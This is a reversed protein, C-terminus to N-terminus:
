EYENEVCFSDPCLVEDQEFKPVKCVNTYILINLGANVFSLGYRWVELFTMVSATFSSKCIM